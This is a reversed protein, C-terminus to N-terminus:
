RKVLRLDDMWVRGRIRTNAPARIISVKLLATDPAVRFSSKLEQWPHTDLVDDTLLLTDENYADVIAIRPGSSSTVNESKVWVSFDYEANGQVPVFQIWGSDYAANGDYSLALSRTGSHAVRDDVGVAVHDVTQFRWDFGSNLLPQEFGANVILNDNPLYAGIEPALTALAHWGRDFGAVDHERLLYDFYFFSIQPPFAKHGAVIAQWVDSAAASEGQEVLVRLFAVQLEPRPPIAEALILKANGNERWCVPLLSDAADPNEELAQRVLPFARDPQGSALFLQAAEAAIEPNGPEASLASQLAANEQEVEGSVQYLSALDLWYPGRDPNLDVARRFNAIAVGRDLNSASLRVGLLNPLEANGPLLRIAHQIDQVQVSDAYRQARYVRIVRDMYISLACATFLLLLAKALQPRPPLTM